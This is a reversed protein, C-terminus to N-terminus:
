SKEELRDHSAKLIIFINARNNILSENLNSQICLRFGQAFKLGRSSSITFIPSMKVWWISVFRIQNCCMPQCDKLQPSYIQSFFRFIQITVQFQWRRWMRLLLACQEALTASPHWLLSRNPHLWLQDFLTLPTPKQHFASAALALKSFSSVGRSGKVIKTQSVTFWSRTISSNQRRVDIKRQRECVNVNAVTFLTDTHQNTWLTVPNMKRDRPHQDVHGEVSFGAIRRRGRKDRQAM